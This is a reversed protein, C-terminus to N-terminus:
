TEINLPWQSARVSTPDFRSVFNLIDLRYRVLAANRPDSVGGPFFLDEDVGGEPVFREYPQSYIFIYLFDIYKGITDTTPLYELLDQTSLTTQPRPITRKHLCPPFNSAFSLAPHVTVGFRSMGHVTIRYLYSTLVEQLATRDNV